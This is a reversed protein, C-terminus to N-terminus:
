VSGTAKSIAAEAQGYAIAKDAPMCGTTDLARHVAVLARLAKLLEPAAIMVQADARSPYPEAFNCVTGDRGAPLISVDKGQDSFGVWPGPTHKSEAM